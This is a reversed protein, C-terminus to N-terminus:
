MREHWEETVKLTTIFSNMNGILASLRFNLQLSKESSDKPIDWDNSFSGIEM